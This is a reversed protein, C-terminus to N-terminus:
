DVRLVNNYIYFLSDINVETLGIRTDFIDRKNHSILNSCVKLYSSRTQYSYYKGVDSMKISQAICKCIWGVNKGTLAQKIAVNFVTTSNVTGLSNVTAVEVTFFVLVM